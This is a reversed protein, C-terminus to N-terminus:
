SPILDYTQPGPFFQLHQRTTVAWFGQNLKIIAIYRFSYGTALVSHSPLLDVKEQPGTAIRISM